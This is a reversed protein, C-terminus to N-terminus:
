LELNNNNNDDFVQSMCVNLLFWGVTCQQPDRFMRRKGGITHELFVAHIKKELIQSISYRYLSSISEIM